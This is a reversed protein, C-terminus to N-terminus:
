AQQKRREALIATNERVQKKGLPYIFFLSLAVLLYAIAPIGSAVGYIKDLVDQNQTSAASVYGIASLAFGGLGGALAQGLKRAFSYVAYVTGDERKGTRIEQYDIIDTIFAWIIINFYNMGLNGLSALVLFLWVNSTGMFFLLTYITASWLLAVTGSEKKGFRSAIKNSFPALVLVGAAGAVGAIALARYNQFYDAYLYANMTGVLLQALLLFIAAVIIGVLARNTTLGKIINKVQTGFSEKPQQSTDPLQVREISFHYCFQYLVFAIVGFAIAIITFRNGLVIQTGNADTTYVFLPVFFSIFISALSAGVSRFISLSSRHDPNDSIVSAMSGYPINIATYCFSGWFIYTVFIYVIRMNMPWDQAVNLFLLIGSIVAFPAVRKIWVRFRGDKSPKLTDILRGMGIDTFADVVRATLFLTGVVAGSIGLVKTYFLMLFSSSFIFFMDNAIDGSMYALKDIFGFKRVEAQKEEHKSAEIM